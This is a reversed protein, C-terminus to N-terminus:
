SVQPRSKREVWAPAKPPTDMSTNLHLKFIFMRRWLRVVFARSFRHGPSLGRAEELFPRRLHPFHGRLKQAMPSAAINEDESCAGYRRQCTTAREQRLARKSAQSDGM